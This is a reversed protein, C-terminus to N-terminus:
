APGRRGRHGPRHAKRRFDLAVRFRALVKLYPRIRAPLAERAKPDNTRARKLLLGLGYADGNSM